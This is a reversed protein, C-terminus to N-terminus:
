GRNFLLTLGILTSNRFQIEVIQREGKVFVTMNASLDQGAVRVRFGGPIVRGDLKGSLEYTRERWVGNLRGDAHTIDSKIEVKGSPSACRVTQAVKDPDAVRRYTARCKVNETKGGKFGLRGQGIWWGILNDFPHAAQNASLTPSSGLFLVALVLSPIFVSRQLM